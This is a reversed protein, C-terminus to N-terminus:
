NEVMRWLHEILLTVGVENEAGRPIIIDANRESPAVFADHMPKVTDLYQSVISELTRGRQKQDRFIRRILRIDADAQIFVKLDFLPLLESFYLVFLGELLIIPHPEVCITQSSRTYTVFDYVPVEVSQGERLKHVDSVFREIDFSNPHDYNFTKREELSFESFPRYYSDMAITQVRDGLEEKLRRLISTKGSASGGAIGIIKTM